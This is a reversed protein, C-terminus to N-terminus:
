KLGIKSTLREYTTGEPQEEQSSVAEIWDQLRRKIVGTLTDVQDTFKGNPFSTCETLFSDVWSAGELLFVRGSEMVPSAATARTLKSDKPPEDEIVNIKRGNSLKMTELEQVISIGTAKPEFVCESSGTYGHTEIHNIYAKKFKPFSLNVVWMDWIYLNDDRISYNMTASNNSAEKGYATDSYFDRIIEKPLQDITFYKFWAKKIIDGEEPSPRQQYLSVFIRESKKRINKLRQLSHKEPWLAEDILRPDDPNSDDEKIAPFKLIEWLEKEMNLIRGAMDDENWRTMTLLKQSDNHLRTEAVSIYWDWLNNRRTQSNAEEPGKVPDDINLIDATFGTLSSEVGISKYSGAYGVIEFYDAREAYRFGSVDRQNALKFIEAYSNEKMIRQADRNFSKALEQSYSIGLIKLNPNRGLLFAPLRRSVLESKGHQPPTFIM